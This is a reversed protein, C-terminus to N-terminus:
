TCWPRPGSSTRITRRPPAPQAARLRGGRRSFNPYPADPRPCPPPFLSILRPATEDALDVVGAVPYPEAALEAIAETNVVAAPPRAGAPRHAHRHPQRVGPRARAALRAGARDIDSIDLVIVGAAGYRCTPATATSTRRDTCRCGGAATPGAGGAASSPCSGGHGGGRAATPDAVDLVVYINGAFGPASAAVHVYRGGDYHNRHVGSAGTRWHGLLRPATPGAVDFLRLGEDTAASRTAEGARAATSSAWARAPRRGGAGALDRREPRAARAGRGGALALRIPSTSSRLHRAGLVPHRVPVLPGAVVQLALKFAPRGDLDHYAVPEFRDSTYGPMAVGRPAAATTQLSPGSLAATLRGTVAACRTHHPHLRQPRLTQLVLTPLLLLRPRM